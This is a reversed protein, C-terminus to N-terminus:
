RPYLTVSYTTGTKSFKTDSKYVSSLSAIFHQFKELAANEYRNERGMLRMNIKLPHGVQGFKLAQNRRVDLDHDSITYTIRLTKLEAQKTNVRNKAQTKQQKFLFKGYDMIKVLTTGDQEGVEVLDLSSEEAQQLASDLSMIGLPKGDESIVCVRDARIDENIRREKSM